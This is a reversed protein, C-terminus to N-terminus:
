GIVILSICGWVEEYEDSSGETVEEDDMDDREGDMNDEEPDV